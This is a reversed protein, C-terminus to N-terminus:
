ADRSLLVKQFESANLAQAERNMSEPNAGHAGGAVPRSSGSLDAFRPAIVSLIKVEYTSKFFLFAGEHQKAQVAVRFM